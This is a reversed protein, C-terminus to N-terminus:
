FRFILFLLHTFLLIRASIHDFQYESLYIKNNCYNCEFSLIVFLGERKNMYLKGNWKKDCAECKTESLLALLLKNQIISYADLPADCVSSFNNYTKQRKVIKQSSVSSARKGTTLSSSASSQSKSPVHKRRLLSRDIFNPTMDSSMFLFVYKRYGHTSFRKNAMNCSKKYIIDFLYFLDSFFVCTIVDIDYCIHNFKHVYM